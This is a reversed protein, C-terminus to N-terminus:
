VFYFKFFNKKTYLYGQGSISIVMSPINLLKGVLGGILNAKPSATHIIDPKFNKCYNYVQLFGVLEKFPNISSSSFNARFFKIKNKKLIKKQIPNCKKVVKRELLLFYIM